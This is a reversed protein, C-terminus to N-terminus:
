RMMALRILTRMSCLSHQDTPFSPTQLENEETLCELHRESKRVRTLTFSCNFRAAFSDPLGTGKDLMLRCTLREAESCQEDGAIRELREAWSFLMQNAGARVRGLDDFWNRILEDGLSSFCDSTTKQESTTM